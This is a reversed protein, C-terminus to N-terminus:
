FLHESSLSDIASLTERLNPYGDRHTAYIDCVARKAENLCVLNRGAGTLFNQVAYIEEETRGQSKWKEFAQNMNTLKFANSNHRRINETLEKKEEERM